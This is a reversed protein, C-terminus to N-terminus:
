GGCFLEKWTEIGSGKVLSQMNYKNCVKIFSDVDFEEDFNVKVVPTGQFPVKVLPSIEKIIRQGEESVINQYSKHHHPLEGKLFKIATKEGIGPVGLVSDSSCGSLCKQNYWMEPTIDFDKKLDNITYLKNKQINFMKINDSLLQYLDKDSAVMVFNGENNMICSAFIDDGEFGEEMFLNEFGLYPLIKDKLEDYQEFALKNLEIDEPTKDEHRKKKYGPYIDRRLSKRSDLAFVFKNTKFHKALSIIKNLFAYIIGTEKEKYSLGKM